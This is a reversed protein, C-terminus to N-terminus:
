PAFSRELANGPESARTVPLYMRVTLGRGPGDLLCLGGGQASVISHVIALGLGHHRPKNSFFPQHFLRARAEDDLGVGDDSVDLRVFLGQGLRGWARRREDEDPVAVRATVVVKGAKEIAEHANDLLSELIATTQEDTLALLPLDGPVDFVEEVQREPTNRRGVQHALISLLPVGVAGPTARCGLLRLRQTLAVGQQTGCYAVDLYRKVTSGPPVQTLSMEVFGLISTLVNSYVHALKRAVLVADELRQQDRLDPRGNEEM